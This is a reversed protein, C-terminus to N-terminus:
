EILVHCLSLLKIIEQTMELCSIRL